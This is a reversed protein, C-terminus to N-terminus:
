YNSVVTLDFGGAASGKWGIKKSLVQGKKGFFIEHGSVVAKLSGANSMWLKVEDNVNLKLIDGKHFYKENRGTGDADYRFFCYGSFEFDLTFPKKEPVSLVVINKGREGVAPVPQEADAAVGIDFDNESANPADIEKSINLIISKAGKDIDKIAIKVDNESDNDLDAFIEKEAFVEVDGSPLTLIINEGITKCVIDFFGSDLPVRIMDNENFQRELFVGDLVYKVGRSVGKATQEAAPRKEKSRVSGDSGFSGKKYSSVFLIMGSVLLVFVVVSLIILFARNKKKGQILAPPSDSEQLKTNKYLAIIEEEDIGLYRSINKLFGLLYIEGPLDDFREEEIAKIYSKSIFTDRSVKEISFGKEERVAKIRLGISEM